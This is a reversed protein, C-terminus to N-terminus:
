GDAPKRQEPESFNPSTTASHVEYPGALLREARVGDQHTVDWNNAALLM